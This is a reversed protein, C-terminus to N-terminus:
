GFKKDIRMEIVDRVARFNDMMARVDMAGQTPDPTPWCDIKTDSDDFVARVAAEADTNFAIVVDFSTDAIEALTKSKHASLDMGKERMVAVMLDSLEGAELGCSQVYVDSGYRDKMM